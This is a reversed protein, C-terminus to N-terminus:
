WAAGLSFSTPRESAIGGEPHHDGAFRPTGHSELEMLGVVKERRRSVM